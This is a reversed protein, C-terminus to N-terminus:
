RFHQVITISPGDIAVGCGVLSYRGRMNEYHGGGPGPEPVGRDRDRDRSRGNPVDSLPWRLVENEAWAGSMAAARSYSHAVRTRSDAAAALPPTPRSLRDIPEGAGRRGPSSLSQNGRCLVCGGSELRTPRRTKASPPNPAATGGIAFPVSREVIRENRVREARSVRVYLSGAPAAVSLSTAPGVNAIAINSAGPASGALVVYNTAPCGGSPAWSLTVMQGNITPTLWLPASPPGACLAAAGGGVSVVVENSPASEGDVGIARVRIYYTGSPVASATVSTAASISGSAVNSLGPATGAELRYGTVGGAAATWTLTVTSGAVGARLNTPSSPVALVATSALIVGIFALSSRSSRGAVTSSFLDIRGHGRTSPMM